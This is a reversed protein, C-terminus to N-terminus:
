QDSGRQQPAVNSARMRVLEQAYLKGYIYSSDSQLSCVAGLLEETPLKSERYTQTDTYTDGRDNSPLPATTLCHSLLCMGM